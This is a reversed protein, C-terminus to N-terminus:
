VGGTASPRPGAFPWVTLGSRKLAFAFIVLGVPVTIFLMWYFLACIPVIGAVVMALGLRPQSACLWLGTIGVLPALGTVFGYLVQDQRSDFEGGGLLMGIGNAAFFLLPLAMVILGIRMIASDNVKTGRESRAIAGAEFRWFIDAPMGLLLRLLIEVATGTVPQRRLDALRQHEWLDCDIEERREARLDAPLGRTYIATWARTLAIAFWLLANV